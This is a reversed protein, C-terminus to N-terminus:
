GDPTEEETDHYTIYVWWSRSGPNYEFIARRSNTLRLRRFTEALEEVRDWAQARTDWSSDFTRRM